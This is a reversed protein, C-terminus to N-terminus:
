ASRRRRLILGGIALGSLALASPEPVATIFSVQGDTGVTVTGEFTGSRLDGGVQGSVNDKGLIRYLDLAFEATGAPSFDGFSTASGAQQVGGDFAQFGTGQINNGQFVTIPQKDDILSIDTTSITVGVSYNNALVNNQANIDQAASTMLTNTAVTWASSNAVGVTGVGYRPSSVYLTRAPDGNVLTTSTNSIAQVGSLGAYIGTDSAWGAGFASTLTTNLDLFNIRNAADPGAADGRYLTAANGLNAYVTNTSGVKQFTLVLDGPAYFTNAATASFAALLSSSAVLLASRKITNKMIIHHQQVTHSKRHLLIPTFRAM